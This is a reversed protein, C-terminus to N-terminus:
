PFEPDVEEDCLEEARAEWMDIEEQTLEHDFGKRIAAGCSSHFIYIHFDVEADAAVTAGMFFLFLLFKKM